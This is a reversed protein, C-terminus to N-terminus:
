GKFGDLADLTLSSSAIEPNPIRGLSELIHLAIFCEFKDITALKYVIVMFTTLYNQRVYNKPLEAGNLLAVSAYFTFSPLSTTVNSLLIM